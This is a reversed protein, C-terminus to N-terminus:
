IIRIFASNMVSLYSRIVFLQKDYWTSEDTCSYYASWLVLCNHTSIRLRYLVIPCGVIRQVTRTVLRMSIVVIEKWRVAAPVILLFRFLWRLVSYILQSWANKKRSLVFTQPCGFLSSPGGPRLSHRISGGHSIKRGLNEYFPICETKMKEDGKHQPTM